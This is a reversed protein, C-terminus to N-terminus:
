APFPQFVLWIKTLLFRGLPITSPSLTTHHHHTHTKPTSPPLPLFPQYPNRTPGVHLSVSFDLYFSKGIGPTKMHIGLAWACLM